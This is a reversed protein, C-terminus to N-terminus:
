LSSCLRDLLDNGGEEFLDILSRLPLVDKFSNGQHKGLIGDFIVPGQRDPSFM